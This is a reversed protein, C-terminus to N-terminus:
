HQMLYGEGAITCLLWGEAAENFFFSLFILYKEFAATHFDHSNGSTRCACANRKEGKATM